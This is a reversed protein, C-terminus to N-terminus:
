KMVKMVSWQGSDVAFHNLDRHACFGGLVPRLGMFPILKVTKLKRAFTGMQQLDLALM